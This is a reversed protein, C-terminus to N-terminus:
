TYNERRWKLPSQGELRRFVKSFYSQDNFGVRQSVEALSLTDQMLLKAAEIRVQNLYDTFSCGMEEGFLKSFYTPALGVDSAVDQLAIDGHYNHRIYSIARYLLDRNKVNSLEFTCAIFRDLVPVLLRSLELLDGVDQIRRLYTNELGFIVELDAGAAIAARALVATLAIIKAKTVKFSSGEFYLAGLIENLIKRAEKQDGTQVAFILDKELSFVYTDTPSLDAPRYGISLEAKKEHIVQAIGAGLASFTQREALLGLEPKMLSQALRLLVEALYRVRTPDVVPICSLAQRLNGEGSALHPNQRYIHSILLDDIEHLLIPGGILYFATVGRELIAVAWNCLGSPCFYIYYEGLKEAQYGGYLYSRRCQEAGMTVNPGSLTRCFSDGGLDGFSAIPDGARSVVKCGVGCAASYIRATEITRESLTQGM